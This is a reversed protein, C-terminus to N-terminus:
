PPTLDRFDIGAGIGSGNQTRYAPLTKEISPKATSNEAIRGPLRKAIENQVADPLLGQHGTHNGMFRSDPVIMVQVQDGLRDVAVYERLYPYRQLLQGIRELRAFYAGDAIRRTDRSTRAQNIQRIRELKLDLLVREGLNLMAQYRALNPVYIRVPTIAKVEIGVSAFDANMIQVAAGKAFYTYLRASIEPIDADSIYIEKIFRDLVAHIRFQLYAELRNWDPKDLQLFLARLHDSKLEYEIRLDSRIYYSKDLGLIESQSLGRSYKLSAFRPRVMVRHLQVRGPMIRGSVFRWDGPRVVEADLGDFRDEILVAERTSTSVFGLYIYTLIFAILVAWFFSRFFRAIM